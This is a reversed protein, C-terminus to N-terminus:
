GMGCYFPMVDIFGTHTVAPHYSPHALQVLGLTKGMEARAPFPLTKHFPALDELCEEWDPGLDTMNPSGDTVTQM